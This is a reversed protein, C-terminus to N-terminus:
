IERTEFYYNAEDDSLVDLWGGPVVVLRYPFDWWGFCGCYGKGSCFEKAVAEMAVIALCGLRKAKGVM